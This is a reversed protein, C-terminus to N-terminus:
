LLLGHHVLLLHHALHLVRVKAVGVHRSLGHHITHTFFVKWMRFTKKQQQCVDRYRENASKKAYDKNLAVKKDRNGSHAV